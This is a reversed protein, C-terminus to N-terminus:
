SHRHMDMEVHTHLYEPQRNKLNYRPSAYSFAFRMQCTFRLLPLFEVFLLGTIFELPAGSCRLFLVVDRHARPPPHGLGAPPADQRLRGEPQLHRRIQPRLGPRSPRPGPRLVTSILSLPRSAARPIIPFSDSSFALRNYLGEDSEEGSSDEDSEDDMDDMNIENPKAPLDSGALPVMPLLNANGQVQLSRRKIVSVKWKKERFGNLLGFILYLAGGAGMLGGAIVDSYSSQYTFLGHGLGIATMVWVAGVIVVSSSYVGKVRAVRTLYVSTWVGCYVALAARYSPFSRLAEHVVAPPAECSGHPAWVSATSCITNNLQCLAVFSPRPSAILLKLVSVFCGTAAGGLMFTCIFRLVRRVYPPFKLGLSTVTKVRRVPHQTKVAEVVLMLGLPVVIACSFFVSEPLAFQVSTTAAHSPSYAPYSIDPVQSCSLRVGEWAVMSCGERLNEDYRLCYNLACIGATVIVEVLALPALLPNNVLAVNEGKKGEKVGVVSGRARKQVERAKELMSKKRGRERERQGEEHGEEFMDTVRWVENPSTM